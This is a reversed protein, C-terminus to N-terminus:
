GRSESAKPRLASKGFKKSYGCKRCVTVRLPNRACCRKCIQYGFLKKEVIPRIERPIDFM